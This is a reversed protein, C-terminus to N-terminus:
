ISNVNLLIRRNSDIPSHGSHFLNGSFYILRNEKPLIEQKEKFEQDKFIVTPSKSDTFYLISVTHPQDLDHHIQHRHMDLSYVTM